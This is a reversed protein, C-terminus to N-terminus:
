RRFEGPAKGTWRRFAKRFSAAEGYDVLEAIQEVTLPSNRLYDVALDRRVQDLLEQYTVSNESLKRRLSRVSMGLNAAVLDMKPFRGPTNLLEEKVKLIVGGRGEIERLSRECQQRCIEAMEKNSFRLPASLHKSEFQISTYPAAFEPQCGFVAAYRRSHPPEPYCLTLRTPAIPEDLLVRAVAATCALTAEHAFIEFHGLAASEVARACVNPPVIEFEFSIVPDFIEYYRSVLEIAQRLDSASLLAYGLIGFHSIRGRRGYELGLGSDGTVHLAETVLSAFRALSVRSEGEPSLDPDIGCRRFIPESPFGKEDLLAGLSLVWSAPASAVPSSTSKLKQRSAVKATGHWV